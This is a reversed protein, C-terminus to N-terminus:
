KNKFRIGKYSKIEIHNLISKKKKRKLCDGVEYNNELLFLLKTKKTLTLKNFILSSSIGLFNCISKIVNKNIGYIKILNIFISQKDNLITNHIRM